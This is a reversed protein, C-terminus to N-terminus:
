SAMLSLCHLYCELQRSGDNGMAEAEEADVLEMEYGTTMALHALAVSARRRNESWKNSDRQKRLRRVIVCLPEGTAPERPARGNCSCQSINTEAGSCRKADRFCCRCFSLGARRMIRTEVTKPGGCSKQQWPERGIYARYNGKEEETSPMKAIRACIDTWEDEVETWHPPARGATRTRLPPAKSSSGTPRPHPPRTQPPTGYVDAAWTTADATAAHPPTNYADAAMTRATPRAKPRGGHGGGRGREGNRMRNVAELDRTDNAGHHWRCRDGYPCTGHQAYQWCEGDRRSLRDTSFAAMTIANARTMGAQIEEKSNYSFTRANIQTTYVEPDLLSVTSDVHAHRPSAYYGQSANDLANKWGIQEFTRLLEPFTGPIHGKAAVERMREQLRRAVAAAIGLATAHKKVATGWSLWIGDAPDAVHTGHRALANGINYARMARATAQEYNEGPRPMHGRLAWLTIKGRQTEDYTIHTSSSITTLADLTMQELLTSLHDRLPRTRDTGAGGVNTALELARGLQEKEIREIADHVKNSAREKAADGEAVGDFAGAFALSLANIIRGPLRAEEYGCGAIQRAIPDALLSLDFAYVTGQQRHLSREKTAGRGTCDLVFRVQDGTHWLLASDCSKNFKIKPRRWPPRLDAGTTEGLRNGGWGRGFDDDGHDRRSGGYGGHGDRRRQGAMALSANTTDALRQRKKRDYGHPDVTLGVAIAGATTDAVAAEKIAAHHGGVGPAVVMRLELESYVIPIQLANRDRVWQPIDAALEDNVIHTHIGFSDSLPPSAQTVTPLSRARQIKAMMRRKGEYGGRFNSNRVCAVMEVEWQGLAAWRKGGVDLPAFQAKTTRDPRVFANGLRQTIACAMARMRMYPRPQAGKYQEFHVNHDEYLPIVISHRKQRGQARAKLHVCYCDARREYKTVEWARKPCREEKDKDGGSDWGEVCRLNGTYHVLQGARPLAAPCGKPRDRYRMGDHDCYFTYVVMEQGGRTELATDCKRNTAGGTATFMDQGISGHTWAIVRSAGSTPPEDDRALFTGPFALYPQGRETQGGTEVTVVAASAQSGWEEKWEDICAEDSPKAMVVEVYHAHHAQVTEGSTTTDGARLRGQEHARGPLGSGTPAYVRDHSLMNNWLSKLVKDTRNNKREQEVSERAQKAGLNNVKTEAKEGKEKIHEVSERLSEIYNALERSAKEVKAALRKNDEEFTARMREKDEEFTARMREKDEEFEARMSEFMDRIAATAGGKRDKTSRPGEGARNEERSPTKASRPVESARKEERSPTSARKTGSDGVGGRDFKEGEEAPTKHQRDAEEGGAGGAREAGEAGVTIGTLAERRATARRSRTNYSHQSAGSTRSREDDQATRRGAGGGEVGTQQTDEQAGSERDEKEKEKDNEM